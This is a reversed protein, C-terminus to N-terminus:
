ELWRKLCCFLNQYTISAVSRNENSLKLKEKVELAQHMGGRLKVGPMM